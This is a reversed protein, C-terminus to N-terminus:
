AGPQLRQRVRETFRVEYPVRQLNGSTTEIGQRGALEVLWAWPHEEASEDDPLVTTRVDRELADLTLQDWPDESSSRCAFGRDQHL